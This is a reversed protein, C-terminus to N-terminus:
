IHYFEEFVKKFLDIARKADRENLQFDTGEHAIQNRVKHAEWATDLTVLTNKDASKLKDGLTDGPFGQKELVEDLMIDAELIALRWDSPNTSNIHDQIEKWKELLAIDQSPVAVPEQTTPLPLFREHEKKEIERIKRQTYIIVALLVIIFAIAYPTILGVYYIVTNLLAIYSFGKFLDYIRLFLYELNLFNVTDM